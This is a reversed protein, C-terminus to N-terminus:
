DMICAGFLIYEMRRDDAYREFGVQANLSIEDNVRLGTSLYGRESPSKFDEILYGLEFIQDSFAKRLCAAFVNTGIEIRGAEFDANFLQFQELALYASAHLKGHSLSSHVGTKQYEASFLYNTPKNPHTSNQEDSGFNIRNLYLFQNGFGTLNKKTDIYFDFQRVAKTLADHYVDLVYDAAEEQELFRPHHDPFLTDELMLDIAIRADLSRPDTKRRVIEQELEQEFISIYNKIEKLPESFYESAASVLGTSGLVLGAFLMFGAKKYDEHTM